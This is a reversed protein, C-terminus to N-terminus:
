GGILKLGNKKWGLSEVELLNDDKDQVLSIHHNVSLAELVLRDPDM